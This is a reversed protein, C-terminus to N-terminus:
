RKQPEDVEVLKVIPLLNRERVSTELLCEGFQIRSRAPLKLTNLRVNSQM